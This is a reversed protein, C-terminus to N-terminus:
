GERRGIKCCYEVVYVYYGYILIGTVFVIPTWNLSVRAVRAARGGCTEKVHGTTGTVTTSQHLRTETAESTVSQTAGVKANPMVVPHGCASTVKHWYLALYHQIGERGYKYM